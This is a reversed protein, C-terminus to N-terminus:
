LTFKFLLYRIFNISGKIYELDLLITKKQNKGIVFSWKNAPLSYGPRIRKINKVSFKEGKIKKVVYISRQFKINKMENKNRYFFKKGLLNM